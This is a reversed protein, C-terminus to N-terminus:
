RGPSDVCHVQVSGMPKLTQERESLSDDCLAPMRKNADGVACGCLALQCLKAALMALLKDPRGDAFVPGAFCASIRKAIESVIRVSDSQELM